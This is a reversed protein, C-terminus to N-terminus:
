HSSCRAAFCSDPSTEARRASRSGCRSREAGSPSPSALRRMSAPAAYSCRSSRWAPRWRAAIAQNMDGAPRVIFTMVSRPPAQTFPLFMARVPGDRFSNYRADAVVGAITVDKNVFRGLAKDVGGFYFEAFQRTVVAVRRRGAVDEATLPQGAIIRM